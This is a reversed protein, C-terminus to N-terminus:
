EDRERAERLDRVEATLERVAVAVEAIVEAVRYSALIIAYGGLSLDAIARETKTFQQKNM